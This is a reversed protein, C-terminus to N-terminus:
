VIFGNKEPYISKKRNIYDKFKIEMTKLRNNYENEM